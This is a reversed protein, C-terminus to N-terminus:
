ECFLGTTENGGNELFNSICFDLLFLSFCDKDLLVLASPLLEAVPCIGMINSLTVRLASVLQHHCFWKEDGFGQWLGLRCWFGSM